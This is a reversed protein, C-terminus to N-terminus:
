PNRDGDLASEEPETILLYKEEGPRILGLERRALYEIYDLDDRRELRTELEAITAEVQTREKRVARIEDHLQAITHERLGFFVGLALIATGLAIM